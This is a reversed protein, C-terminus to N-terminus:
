PADPLKQCVVRAPRQRVIQATVNRTRNRFARKLSAGSVKGDDHSEEHALSNFVQGNLLMAIVTLGFAFVSLHRSM